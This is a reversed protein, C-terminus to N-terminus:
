KETQTKQLATAVRGAIRDLDRQGEQSIRRGHTVPSGKRDTGTVPNAEVVGITTLQQVIYRAIKASGRVFTCPKPGRHHSGGYIKTFAGVGTGGRLYLKRAISAARTYYWDPDQPCMEKFKGTKVIDVWPPLELWNSRKLHDAYAKIFAAAPVDKVTVGKSM